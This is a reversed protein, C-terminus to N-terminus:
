RRPIRSPIVTTNEGSFTASLATEISSAVSFLIAVTPVIDYMGAIKPHKQADCTILIIKLRYTLSDILRYIKRLFEYVQQSM